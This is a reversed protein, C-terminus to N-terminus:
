QSFSLKVLPQVRVALAPRGPLTLCENQGPLRHDVVNLTSHLFWAQRMQRKPDDLLIEATRRLAQCRGRAPIGKNVLDPHHNL